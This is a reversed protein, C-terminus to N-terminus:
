EYYGRNSLTPYGNSDPSYIEHIHKGDVISYNGVLFFTWMILDVDGVPDDWTADVLYWNGNLEVYNWSHNEGDAIGFVSVCPIGARDCLLQFAKTYGECVARGSLFVGDINFASESGSMVSLTPIEKAYRTNDIIWDHFHKVAKEHDDPSLRVVDSIIREMDLSMGKAREPTFRYNVKITLTGERTRENGSWEIGYSGLALWFIGPVERRMYDISEEVRGLMYETIYEDDGHPLQIPVEIKENFNEIGDIIANKIEPFEKATRPADFLSMQSATATNNDQRNRPSAVGSVVMLNNVSDYFAEPLLGSFFLSTGVLAIILLITLLNKMQNDGKEL